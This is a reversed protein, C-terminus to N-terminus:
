MYVRVYVYVSVVYRFDRDIIIDSNIKRKIITFIPFQIRTLMSFYFRTVCRSSDTPITKEIGDFGNHRIIIIIYKMSLM